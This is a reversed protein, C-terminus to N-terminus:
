LLGFLAKFKGFLTLRIDGTRFEPSFVIKLRSMINEKYGAVTELTKRAEQSVYEGYVDLISRALRVEKGTEGTIVRWEKIVRGALGLPSGAANRGHQRYRIHAEPDCIVAGGTSLALSVIFSDHNQSLMDDTVPRSMLLRRLSSNMMM